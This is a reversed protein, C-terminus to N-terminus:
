EDDLIPNILDFWFRIEKHNYAWGTGNWTEFHIKGDKRCVIYRGYVSPPNDKFIKWFGTIM